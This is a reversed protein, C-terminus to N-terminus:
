QVTQLDVAVVQVLPVLQALITEVQQVVVAAQVVAVIEKELKKLVQLFHQGQLDLQPHLGMQEM